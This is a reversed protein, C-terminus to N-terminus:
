QKIDLIETDLIHDVSRDRIRDVPDAHLDMLTLAHSEDTLGARPFGGSREADQPKQRLVNCFNLSVNFEVALANHIGALLAHTLQAATVDRHNKLVRHRAQVRDEGHARLDGVHDVPMIHRQALLLHLLLDVRDQFRDANGFAPLLLIGVLEGAAHLLTDHDRDRDGAARLKNQRILGRGRQVDRNLRLHDFHHARELFLQVGCHQHDRM